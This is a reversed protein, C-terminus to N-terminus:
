NSYCVMAEGVIFGIMIAWYEWQNTKLGVHSCMAGAFGILCYGILKIM